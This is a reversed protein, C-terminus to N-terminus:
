PAEKAEPTIDITKLRGDGDSEVFQVIMTGLGTPVVPNDPDGVIAQQPKGDVRDMIEKIAWPEGDMAAQVLKEMIIRLKPVKRGKHDLAEASLAILLASRTFPRKKSREAMTTAAPRAYLSGEQPGIKATNGSM